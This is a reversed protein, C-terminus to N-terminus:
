STPTGGTYCEHRNSSAIKALYPSPNNSGHGHFPYDWDSENVAQLASGNLTNLGYALCYQPSQSLNILAPSIKLASPIEWYLNGYLCAIKRNFSQSRM